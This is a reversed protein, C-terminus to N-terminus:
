SAAQAAAVFARIKALDKVGDTEVGSSVDVCWPRVAGIAAAVNASTLGGALWVPLAASIPAVAQWDLPRGTGGYATSEARALLLAIASGAEIRDLAAEASEDLAVHLVKIM